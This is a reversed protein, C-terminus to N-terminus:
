KSSKLGREFNDDTLSKEDAHCYIQFSVEPGNPRGIEISLKKNFTFSQGFLESFKKLIFVIICRM